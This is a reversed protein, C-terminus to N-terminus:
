QKKVIYTFDMTLMKTISPHLIHITIVVVFHSFRMSLIHEVFNIFLSHHIVTTCSIVTQSFIENVIICVAVLSIIRRADPDYVPGFNSFSKYHPPPPRHHPMSFQTFMQMMQLHYEREDRHMQADREMQREEPRM